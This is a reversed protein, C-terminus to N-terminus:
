ALKCPKLFSIHWGFLSKGRKFVRQSFLLPHKTIDKVAFGYGFIRFWFLGDTYYYSVIRM